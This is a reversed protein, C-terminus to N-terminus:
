VNDSKDLMFTVTWGHRECFDKISEEDPNDFFCDRWHDSDGVFVDGGDVVIITRPDM